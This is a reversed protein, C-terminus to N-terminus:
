SDPTPNTTALDNLVANVTSWCLDATDYDASHRARKEALPLKVAVNVGAGTRTVPMTAASRTAAVQTGRSRPPTRAAATHVPAASPVRGAAAADL